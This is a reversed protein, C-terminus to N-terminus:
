FFILNTKIKKKLLKIKKNDDSQIKINILIFFNKNKKNFFLYFIYIM